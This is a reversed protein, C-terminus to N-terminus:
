KSAATGRRGCSSSSRRRTRASCLRRRGLAVDEPVRRRRAKGTWHDRASLGLYYRVIQSKPFRTTLPGLQSFSANLNDKDFRGVAQAVQAEVDNPNKRRRARLAGRGLASPGRAAADLRADLLPNSGTPAFIPDGPFYQPHLLSDAEIEYYTNRGCKKAQRSRRRRTPSTAAVLLARDGLYFQVVPDHPHTPARADRDREPQGPPWTTYAARVTAQGDAAPLRDGQPPPKGPREAEATDGADGARRRRCEWRRRRRLVAVLVRVRLRSSM